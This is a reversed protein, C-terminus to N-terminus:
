QASRGFTRAQWSSIVVTLSSAPMMLAAVLPNIAGTMALGAGALNYLLSFVLNRRIVRMTREAGGVLRVLPALGPETLYVDATALCAEAGGHVGVGVSAAAMAAADNVGDGVMVVPRGNRAQEVARLKDEPSASGAADAEPIALARAVDRVVAPADGSLVRVSWGRERLACVADAAGARVPDGFGAAAVVRGDVAVLVPTLRAEPEPLAPAAAPPPLQARVFRPSGVVVDHGDVRGRVGGGVVHVTTEARAPAVEPWAARFGAAIPHTSDAELALVLPRVGDDGSWQVLATRGETITGTKDLLLLGPRALTEVVDGGKIFIGARAARGIAMSVALPTSLALACPCTVILLSIANDVARAPDRIEWLALTVAALLLVAAVFWAAMRNATEVVPARRRASEDVQRLIKAVRSSEGAQEVRVRLPSSLNVTGAYVAAGEDVTVPHSEGTLLAADLQSRGRTVVGDAALTEGPRVDLTMGPLLAEAPLERVRGDDGAVRATSPTLSYLLEAGDAAARQGRQQLYRGVLLLFILLALGDFYIPGADRVTNVAGQVYGVALGLAIPVDMHLTRARLAAWAGAFFVRGPSFLAPTVLVLSVWRFFLQWEHEMGGLWGAYLAFAALMINGAIAGAVGIRALMARDERRRIADRQVGRFPHPPYGLSDLMRAVRSLPVATPDWIVRALSRRIELEAAAVGPLLLPVREVLWVCSACHVGELYLDVQALGDGRARVYLARFADHDFEEYTRGTPTVAEARRAGLRYYQDLGHEHLIDYATRCGTCCFQRAAGPAVLGAPVALGCHTCPVRVQARPAAADPTLAARDAYAM